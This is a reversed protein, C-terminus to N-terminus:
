YDEQQYCTAEGNGYSLTFRAGEHLEGHKIAGDVAEAIAWFQSNAAFRGRKEFRRWAKRYGIRMRHLALARYKPWAERANKRSDDDFESLYTADAAELACQLDHDIDIPRTRLTAYHVYAAGDIHDTFMRTIDGAINEPITYHSGRGNRNLDCHRGRTYWIGGLAELEDDIGGIKDAGNQHEILDHAILLGEMAANTDDHRPMGLLGLGIEGTNDDKFAELTIRKM